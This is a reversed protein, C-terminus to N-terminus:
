RVLQRDTQRPPRHLSPGMHAEDLGALAAPAAPPALHTCVCRVCLAHESCACRM